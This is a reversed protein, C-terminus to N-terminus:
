SIIVKEAGLAKIFGAGFDEDTRIMFFLQDYDHFVSKIKEVQRQTLTSYEERVKDLDTLFLKSDSSGQLYMRGVGKPIEQDIPDRLMIGYVKTFHSSLEPLFHEPNTDIFDSVIFIISEQAYNALLNRILKAWNKDGGYNNKDSVIRLMQFFENSPDTAVEVNESNMVVAVRDDAQTAAYALSGAIVAAYENKTVNTTGLLMSDSVDLVIIVDFKREEKFARIYLKNTRAFIKWDIRRPDHGPVYEKIRDFELGKGSVLQYYILNLKFYEMLKTANIITEKILSDFDYMNVTIPNNKKKKM